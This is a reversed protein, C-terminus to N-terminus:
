ESQVSLSRSFVFTYKGKLPLPLAETLLGHMPDCM